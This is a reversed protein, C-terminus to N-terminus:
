AQKLLDHIVAMEVGIVDWKEPSSHFINSLLDCSTKAIETYLIIGVFTWKISFRIPNIM